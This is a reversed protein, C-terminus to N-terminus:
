SLPAQKKLFFRFISIRRTKAEEIITNNQLPNKILLLSDKQTSPEFIDCSIIELSLIRTGGSLSLFSCCFIAEQRKEKSASM